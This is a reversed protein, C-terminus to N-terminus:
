RNRAELQALATRVSISALYDMAASARSILWATLLGSMAISVAVVAVGPIHHQKTGGYATTLEVVGMTAYIAIAAVVSLLAIIMALTSLGREPTYGRDILSAMGDLARIRQADTRGARMADNYRTWELQFDKDARAKEAAAIRGEFDSM